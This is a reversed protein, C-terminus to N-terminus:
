LGLPIRTPFAPDSAYLPSLQLTCKYMKAKIIVSRKFCRGLLMNEHRLSRIKFRRDYKIIFKKNDKSGPNNHNLTNLIASHTTMKYICGPEIISAIDPISNFFGDKNQEYVKSRDHKIRMCIKYQTKSFPERILVFYDNIPKCRRFYGLWALFLIAGIILATILASVAVITVIDM